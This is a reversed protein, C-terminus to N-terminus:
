CVFSWLKQFAYFNYTKFYKNSPSIWQKSKIVISTGSLLDYENKYSYQNSVCDEVFKDLTIKYELFLEPKPQERKGLCKFNIDNYKNEGTLYRHVKKYEINKSKFLNTPNLYKLSLLDQSYGRTAILIGNDYTLSIGDASVWTLKENNNGLAVLTAQTKGDSSSILIIPQKFKSLWENTKKQVSSNSSESKDQLSRKFVDRFVGIFESKERKTIDDSSCSVTLAILFFILIRITM